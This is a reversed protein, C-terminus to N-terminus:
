RLIRLNQPDSLRWSGNINQIIGSVEITNWNLHAQHAIVYNDRDLVIRVNAPRGNPKFWKVIISREALKSSLPNDSSSLGIVRGTITSYEPKLERLEDAAQQLYNFGVEAIRIDDVGRIDESPPVKESWLVSYRIPSSKEEALRVIASCMNANFGNTYGTLLPQITRANVAQETTVLGRIIREMVRRELPLIVEDPIENFLARQVVYHSTSGIVQSELTYGFSGSFTQGFRYHKTMTNGAGIVANFAPKADKESSAAYAVLTKLQPVQKSAVNVPISNEEGTEEIRILLVDRDYFQVKRVVTEPSLGTLASLFNIANSLYINIDSVHPNTPFVIELPKGDGGETGRFVYWAERSEVRQWGVMSLYAALHETSLRKLLTNNATLDM